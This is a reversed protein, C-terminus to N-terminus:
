LGLARELDAADSSMSTDLARRVAELVDDRGLGSRPPIQTARHRGRAKIVSEFDDHLVNLLRAVQRRSVLAYIRAQHDASSAFIEETIVGENFMQALKPYKEITYHNWISLLTHELFRTRSNVSAYSFEGIRYRNRKAIQRITELSEPLTSNCFTLIETSAKTVSIRRDHAYDGSAAEVQPELLASVRDDYASVASLIRENIQHLCAIRPKILENFLASEMERNKAAVSFFLAILGAGAALLTAKIIELLLQFEAATFSSGFLIAPQATVM